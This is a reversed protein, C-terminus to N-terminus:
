EIRDGQRTLNRALVQQIKQIQGSRLVCGTLPNGTSSQTMIDEPRTGHELGWFHGLEHVFTRSMKDVSSRKAAVLCFKGSWPFKGLGVADELTDPFVMDVAHAVKWSAPISGWEKQSMRFRKEDARFTLDSLDVQLLAGQGDYFTNASKLITDIDAQAASRSTWSGPLTGDEGTVITINVKVKFPTVRVSTISNGLGRTGGKDPDNLDSIEHKGRLYFVEGNWKSKNCLLIADSDETMRISRPNNGVHTGRLTERDGDITASAGSCGTKEFLTITM